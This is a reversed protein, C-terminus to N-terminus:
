GGEIITIVSVPINYSTSIENIIKSVNINKDIESIKDVYIEVKEIVYSDNLVINIDKVKDLDINNKKIGEMIDQEIKEKTSETISSNIYKSFDYKTQKEYNNDINNSLTEVVQTITESVNDSKLINIVPSLITIIVLLSVVSIIYKKLKNNPIILELLIGFIAIYLLKIVYEKFLSM